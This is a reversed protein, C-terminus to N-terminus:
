QLVPPAVNGKLPYLFAGSRAADAALGSYKEAEERVTERVKDSAPM